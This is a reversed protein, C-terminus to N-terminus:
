TTKQLVNFYHTQPTPQFIPDSIADGHSINWLPDNKGRVVFCISNGYPVASEKNMMLHGQVCFLASTGKRKVNLHWRERLM